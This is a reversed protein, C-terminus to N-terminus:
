IRLSTWLSCLCRLIASVHRSVRAVTTSSGALDRLLMSGLLDIIIYWTIIKGGSRRRELWSSLFCVCTLAPRSCIIYQHFRLSCWNQTSLFRFLALKQSSYKQLGLMELLPWRFQQRRTHLDATLGNSLSALLYLVGSEQKRPIKPM